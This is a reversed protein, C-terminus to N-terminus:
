IFLMKKKNVCYEITGFILLLRKDIAQLHEESLFDTVDPMVRLYKSIKDNNLTLLRRWTKKRLVCCQYLPALIDIHHEYPNGLGKGNDILLIKGDMIEYHHRDGNQIFFDFIATDVMDLLHKKSVSKQVIKCYSENQEWEALKGIKYTRMWPSKSLKLKNKINFIVAGTLTDYQDTCIADKKFCYFCKGYVCTKNEITYTTELFRKSAVPLINKRVSIKREVCYPVFPLNLIVSLYFAIIESTHRDKGGYVPGKLIREKEYWKPKFIVEQNGQLTLLFKLQSGRGDLDAKIIPAFKLARFINGIEEHKHSVIYQNSIWSNSLNWLYTFNRLVNYKRINQIFIETNKDTSPKPKLYYADHLNKSHFIILEEISNNVEPVIKLSLNKTETLKLYFLYNAVALISLFITLLLVIFKKSNKM